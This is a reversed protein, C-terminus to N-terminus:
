SLYWTLPQTDIKSRRSFLLVLFIIAVKILHPYGNKPLAKEPFGPIAGHPSPPSAPYLNEGGGGWGVHFHTSKMYYDFCTLGCIRICHEM